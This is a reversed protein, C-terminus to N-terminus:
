KDKLSEVLDIKQSAHPKEDFFRQYSKKLDDLSLIPIAVDDIIITRKPDLTLELDGRTYSLDVELGDPSNLKTNISEEGTESEWKSQTVRVYHRAQELLNVARDHEQRTNFALDIDHAQVLPQDAYVCIAFSGYLFPTLQEQKLYRITSVLEDRMRQYMNM